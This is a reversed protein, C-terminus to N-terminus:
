PAAQRLTAVSPPSKHIKMCIRDQGNTLTPTETVQDRGPHRDGRGREHDPAGPLGRGLPDVTAPATLGKAIAGASRVARRASGRFRELSRDQACALLKAFPRVHDAPREPEGGRGHVRYKATMTTRPEHFRRRALLDDAVLARRGALEHVDVDLLQSADELGTMADGAIAATPRLAFGAPLVQVHRDVVVGADAEGAHIAVLRGLAAM